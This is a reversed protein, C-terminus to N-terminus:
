ARLFGRYRRAFDGDYVDANRFTASNLYEACGRGMGGTALSGSGGGCGVRRIPLETQERHNKKSGACSHRLGKRPDFFRVAFEWLHLFLKSNSLDLISLTHPMRKLVISSRELSAPHAAAEMTRRMM